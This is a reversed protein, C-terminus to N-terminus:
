AGGYTRRLETKLIKGLASKPIQEVFAVARPIKFDGIKGHCHEILAASTPAAGEAPVVVAFM